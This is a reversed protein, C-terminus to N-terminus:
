NMNQPSKQCESFFEGLKYKMHVKIAHMQNPPIERYTNRDSLHESWLKNNCTTREILAAGLGNDTAIAMYDPNQKLFNM